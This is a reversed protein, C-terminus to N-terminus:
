ARVDLAVEMAEFPPVPVTVIVVVLLQAQVAVDFAEHSVNDDPLPEPFAVIVQVAAALVAVVVRVAVILAPPWVTVNVCAAAAHV